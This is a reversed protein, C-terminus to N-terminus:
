VKLDRIVAAKRENGYTLYLYVRYSGPALNM